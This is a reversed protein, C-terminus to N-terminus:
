RGLYSLLRAQCDENLISSSDVLRIFSIFQYLVHVNLPLGIFKLVTLYHM